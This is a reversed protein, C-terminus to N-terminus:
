LVSGQGYVWKGSVGYVSDNLRVNLIRGMSYAEALACSAVHDSGDNVGSLSLQYAFGGSCEKGTVISSAFFKDLVGYGDIGQVSFEFAELDFGYASSSNLNRKNDDALYMYVKEQSGNIVCEPIYALSELPGADDAYEYESFVVGPLRISVEQGLTALKEGEPGILYLSGAASKRCAVDCTYVNGVGELDSFELAGQASDFWLRCVSADGGVYSLIEDSVEVQYLFKEGVYLDDVDHLGRVVSGWAYGERVSVDASVRWSVEHLGIGTLQLTVDISSNGPVDFSTCADLGLYFRYVVEGELYAEDGFVGSVELYTCLDAAPGVEEPVKGAPSINDPLLVGQCNELAYFVVSGGGNLISLDDETARDGPIVEEPLSARSGRMGTDKFPRVVSACQCVRASTVNLGELVDKDLSLTIKAALRELQVMIISMGERVKIGSRSWAMPMPGQLDSIEDIAYLCNECFDEEDAFGPLDGANAVVYIDYEYGEMLRVKMIPVISPIYESYELVGDRYIVLDLNAIRYEDVSLGSKCSAGLSVDLVVDVAGAQLQGDDEPLGIEAVCGTVAFSLWLLFRRM